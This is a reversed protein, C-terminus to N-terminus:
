DIPEIVLTSGRHLNAYRIGIEIAEERTACIGSEVLAHYKNLVQFTYM